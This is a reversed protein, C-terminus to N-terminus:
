VGKFIDNALFEQIKIRLDEEQGQLRDFESALFTKIEKLQENLLTMNTQLTSVVSAYNVTCTGKEANLCAEIDGISVIVQSRTEILAFHREALIHVEEATSNINAAYDIENLRDDISILTNNLTVRVSALVLKSPSNLAASILSDSSLKFLKLQNFISEVTAKQSNIDPLQCSKYNVGFSADQCSNYKEIGHTVHRCIEYGIVCSKYITAVACENYKEIGFDRHRCTQPVDGYCPYRSQTYVKWGDRTVRFEPLGAIVSLTTGHFFEYNAPCDEGWNSWFEVRNTGCATSTGSNYLEVGCSAERGLIAREIGCSKNQSSIPPCAASKM